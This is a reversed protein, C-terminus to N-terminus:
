GSKMYMLAFRSRAIPLDLNPNLINFYDTPDLRNTGVTPRETLVDYHADFKAVDSIPFSFSIRPMINIQPTYDKFAKSSLDKAPNTSNAPDQLAPTIKGTNSASALSKPTQIEVGEKNYWKPPFGSSPDRYGVINNADTPKNIDAVYVVFDDGINSPRNITANQYDIDKAKYTEYFVYPDKLVKQNADYRDVREQFM